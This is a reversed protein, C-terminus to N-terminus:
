RAERSKGWTFVLLVSAVLLLLGFRYPLPPGDAIPTLSWLADYIAHLWIVLWLNQTRVYILGLLLSAFVVEGYAFFELPIVGIHYATFLATTFLIAPWNGLRKAMFNQILARFTIEEKFAVIISTAAFVAKTGPGMFSLDGVLLPVSLFIVCAFIFRFQLFDTSALKKSVIFERLLIWYILVAILRFATRILEAEQSYISYHSLAIRTLGVFVVEVSIILLWISRESRIM